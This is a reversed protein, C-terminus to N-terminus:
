GEINSRKVMRKSVRYLRHNKFICMSALLFLRYFYTIFFKIHKINVGEKTCICSTCPTPFASEGVKINRGSVQCGQLNERWANLDIQPLSQCPVRPNSFNFKVKCKKLLFSPCCM